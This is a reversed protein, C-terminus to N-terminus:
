PISDRCTDFLADLLTARGPPMDGVCIKPVLISEYKSPFEKYGKEQEIHKALIDAVEGERGGSARPQPSGRVWAGGQITVPIQYLHYYPVLVSALAVIINFPRTPKNEERELYVCCRQAATAYPATTDGISVGPLEARIRRVMEQWKGHNSLALEWAEQYRKTEPAERFAEGELAGVAHFTSAARLFGGLDLDGTHSM